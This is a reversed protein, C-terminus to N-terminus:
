EPLIVWGSEPEWYGDELRYYLVKGTEYEIALRDGEPWFKKMTGYPWQENVSIHMIAANLAAEESIKPAPEASTPKDHAEEPVSAFNEVDEDMRDKLLKVTRSAGIRDCGEEIYQKMDEVTSIGGAAKIKVKPGIHAALLRVDEHTAGGSGFGTSTKIYDAGGETVCQCATIKEAETLYCAEIIVKLIKDGVVSKVAAIEQTVYEANGNKLASINLVMDVEDAGDSVAQRASVIKAMTTDYGLPFGIVTAIKLKQGYKEAAYSVYCPPICVAATKCAIAEECLTDIQRTTATATLLTHDIKALIDSSKM